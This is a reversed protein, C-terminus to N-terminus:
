VGNEVCKIDDYFSDSLTAMMIDHHSLNFTIIQESLSNNEITSNNELSLKTILPKIDKKLTKVSMGIEKAVCQLIMKDHQIWNATSSIPHENNINDLDTKLNNSLLIIYHKFSESDSPLHSLDDWNGYKELFIQMNAILQKEHNQFLWEYIKRHFNSTNKRIHAITKLTYLMSQESAKTLLETLDM